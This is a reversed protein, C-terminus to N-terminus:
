NPLNTGLLGFYNDLEVGMDNAIFIYVMEVYVVNIPFRDKSQQNLPSDGINHVPIYDDLGGVLHLILVLRLWLKCLRAM